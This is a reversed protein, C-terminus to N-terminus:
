LREEAEFGEAIGQFVGVGGRGLATGVGVVGAGVTRMRRFGLKDKVGGVGIVVIRKLDECTSTDLLTRITRVNGLSLAHIAEGALGGIGTGTASKIAPENSSDLVLSSGLTNTATIFSIPSGDKSKRSSAELANLLTQFQGQYTYPPTKIGVHILSGLKGTPSKNVDTYTASRAAAIADIYAALADADYAPPPKDPINPCSLNIEMMFELGRTQYGMSYPYVKDPHNLVEFLYTYCKAVEEATGTVSIIFPKVRGQRKSLIEDLCGIHSLEVITRVYDEFPIPSYGLTNLSSTESKKRAEGRGENYNHIDVKSTSHGKSSSFFIYQHTRPGQKFGKWLSTRTTVAGTHPCNYLALLDDSNTAWPNSSNLLPPTIKFFPEESPM